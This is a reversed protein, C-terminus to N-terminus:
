EDEAEMPRIKSEIFEIEAKTLGYRKYLIEDTWDTNMSLLPVFYFRDKTIDQSFSLQSVLFRTFRTRLYQALRMADRKTEFVGCVIYTETCITRPPLIDVISLVKRM